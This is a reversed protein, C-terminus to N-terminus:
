GLEPASPLLPYINNMTNYRYLTTNINFRHPPPEHFGCHDLVLNIMERNKTAFARDILTQSNKTSHFNIKNTSILFKVIDINGDDIMDTIVVNLDAKGLLYTMLPINDIKIAEIILKESDITAEHLSYIDDIDSPTTLSLLKTEPKDLIHRMCLPCSRRGMASFMEKICKKHFFHKCKLKKPKFYIKCLCISCEKMM